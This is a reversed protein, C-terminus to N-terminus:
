SAGGGIKEIIKDSEVKGKETLGYIIKGDDNKGVERLLMEKLFDRSFNDTFRNGAPKGWNEIADKLQMRTQNGYLKAAILVVQVVSLKNINSAVIRSLTDPNTNNATSLSAARGLQQNVNDISEPNEKIVDLAASLAKQVEFKTSLTNVSVTVAGSSVSVIIEKESM